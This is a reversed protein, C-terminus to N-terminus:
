AGLIHLVPQLVRHNSAGRGVCARFTSGVSKAFIHIFETQKLKYLYIKLFCPLSCMSSHLFEFTICAWSFPHAVLSHALNFSRATHILHSVSSAQFLIYRKIGNGSPMLLSTLSYVVLVRVNHFFLAFVTQHHDVPLLLLLPLLLIDMKVFYQPLVRM